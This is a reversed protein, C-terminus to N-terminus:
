SLACSTEDRSGPKRRGQGRGPSLHRLQQYGSYLWNAQWAYSFFPRQEAGFGEKFRQVGALGGSPGFDLYVIGRACADQIIETMLLAAPEHDFHSQLTAGHWYSAAANHYLMLMGSIIQGSARAVWLQIGASREHFIQAFLTYPYDVLTTEGWRQLSDRYVAYYDRFDQECVAVSVIVGMRRAKKVGYRKGHAFRQSLVNFGPSLNLIHTYQHTHTYGPAQSLEILPNGMIHLGATSTSALKRFIQGQEHTHLPRTAVPGGYGGPLMSEYWHFLRNRETTRVMPVIATVGDDLVFGRTAITYDPYTTVMMRAWTSTHFFTAYPSQAVVTDWQALSPHFAKM